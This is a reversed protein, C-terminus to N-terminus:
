VRDVDKLISLRSKPQRFYKDFLVQMRLVNFIRAITEIISHKEAVADGRILVSSEEVDENQM